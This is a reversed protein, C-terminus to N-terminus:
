PRHYPLATAARPRTGRSSPPAAKHLLARTADTESASNGLRFLTKGSKDDVINQGKITYTYPHSEGQYTATITNGAVTYTGAMTLFFNKWYVTRDPKFEWLRRTPTGSFSLTTDDYFVGEFRKGSDSCASLGALAVASVM